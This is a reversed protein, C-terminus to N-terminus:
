VDVAAAGPAGVALRGESMSLAYGFEEGAVFGQLIKTVQWLDAGPNYKWLDVRGQGGNWGPDCVCVGADCYGKGSCDNPCRAAALSVGLQSPVGLEVLTALVIASATAGTTLRSSM